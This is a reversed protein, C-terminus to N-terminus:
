VRRSEKYGSVRRCDAPVPFVVIYLLGTEEDHSHQIRRDNCGDLLRGGLPRRGSLRLYRM